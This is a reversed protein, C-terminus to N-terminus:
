IHEMGDSYFEKSHLAISISEQAMFTVLLGFLSTTTYIPSLSSKRRFFPEGNFPLFTKEHQLTFLIGM